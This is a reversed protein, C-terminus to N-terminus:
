NGTTRDFSNVFSLTLFLIFYFTSFGVVFSRFASAFFFFFDRKHADKWCACGYVNDLTNQAQQKNVGATEALEHLAHKEHWMVGRASWHSTVTPHCRPETNLKIWVITRDWCLTISATKVLNLPLYTPIKRGTLRNLSINQWIKTKTCLFVCVCVCVCVGNSSQSVVPSFTSM